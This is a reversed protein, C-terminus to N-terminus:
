LAFYSATLYGAFFVQGTFTLLSFVLFGPTMKNEEKVKVTESPTAVVPNTTSTM